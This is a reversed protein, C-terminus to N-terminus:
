TRREFEALFDTPNDFLDSYILLDDSPLEWWRSDELRQCIEDNFRKRVIRGPIGVVVSYPPIDKTVIAGAGIVAGVGITVGAIIKAGEGIWVDPGLITRNPVITRKVHSVFFKPLPSTNNYFVPSTAVMDTPHNVLGISVNAAISCFPGIEANVIVTNEQAYSYAGFDSQMLRVNSFLVSNDGLASQPDATAGTHIVSNIFRKRLGKGYLWLRINRFVGRM